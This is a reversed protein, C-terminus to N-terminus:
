VFADKWGGADPTGQSHVLEHRLAYMLPKGIGSDLCPLLCERNTELVKAPLCSAVM